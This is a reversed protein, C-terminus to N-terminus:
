ALPDPAAILSFRDSDNANDNDHHNVSSGGLSYESEDHYVEHGYGHHDDYGSSHDGGDHDGEYRGTEGGSIIPDDSFSGASASLERRRGKHDDHHERRHDRDRHNRQRDRSM